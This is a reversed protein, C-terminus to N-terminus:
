NYVRAALLLIFLFSAFFLINKQGRDLNLAAPRTIKACGITGIPLLLSSLNRESRDPFCRYISLYIYISICLYTTWSQQWTRGPFTNGCHYILARDSLSFFSKWGVRIYLRESSRAARLCLCYIYIYLSERFKRKVLFLVRRLDDFSENIRETTGAHIIYVKRGTVFM